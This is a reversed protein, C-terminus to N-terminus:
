KEAQSKKRSNKVKKKRRTESGKVGKVGKRTKPGRGEKGDEHGHIRIGEDQGQGGEGLQLVSELASQASLSLLVDLVEGAM